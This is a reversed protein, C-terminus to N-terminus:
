KKVAKTLAKWDCGEGHVQEAWRQRIVDCYGPDIECAYCIREMEEAVVLVTGSGACLDLVIEQVDTADAMLQRILEVPKQTPHLGNKAPRSVQILNTSPEAPMRLKAERRSGVLCLEYQPHYDGPSLPHADKALVLWRHVVGKHTAWAAQLAPLEKASFFVYAPGATFGIANAVLADVFEAWPEAEQADGEIPERLKDKRFHKGGTYSVNYPPDTILADARNRSLLRECGVRFDGCFLRHAGLLYVRGERSDIEAGADPADDRARPSSTARARAAQERIKKAAVEFRAFDPRPLHPRLRDLGAGIKLPDYSGQITPNNLALNAALEAVDDFRVVVCDVEAFGARQLQAVRQHGGVIRKKGGKVNVVPLELLGLREISEALGAQAEASISRPNYDAFELESIRFRKVDPETNIKVAM